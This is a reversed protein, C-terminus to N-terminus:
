SFLFVKRVIEFTHLIITVDAFTKKISFFIMLYNMALNVERFLLSTAFESEQGSKTM